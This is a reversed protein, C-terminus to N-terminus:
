KADEIIAVINEIRDKNEKYFVELVDEPSKGLMVAAGYVALLNSVNFKGIFQVGVERGDIELYMGELVVTVGLFSEKVSKGLIGKGNGIGIVLVAVYHYLVAFSFYLCVRDTRHGIETSADDLTM